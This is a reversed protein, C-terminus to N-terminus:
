TLMAMLVIIKDTSMRHQRPHTVDDITQGLRDIRCMAQCPAQFTARLDEQGAGFGDGSPSHAFRPAAATTQHCGAVRM